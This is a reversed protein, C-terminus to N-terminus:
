NSEPRDEDEDPESHSRQAALAPANVRALCASSASRSSRCRNSYPQKAECEDLKILTWHLCKAFAEKRFRLLQLNAAEYVSM